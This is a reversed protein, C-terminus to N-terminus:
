VGCDTRRQLDDDNWIVDGGQPATNMVECSGATRSSGSTRAGTSGGSSPSAPSRFSAVSAEPLVLRSRYEDLGFKAGFAKAFDVGGSDYRAGGPSDRNPGDARATASGMALARGVGHRRADPAVYVDCMIRHSNTGDWWWTEAAGLVREHADDWAAFVRYPRLSGPNRVRQTLYALPPSPEDPWLDAYAAVVTDHWAAIEADTVTPADLLEVKM